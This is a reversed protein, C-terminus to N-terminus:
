IKKILKHCNVYNKVVEFGKKLFIPYSMNSAITIWSQYPVKEYLINFVGKGRFKPLTYAYLIHTKNYTLFGRLENDEYDFLWTQGFEVLLPEGLEKYCEKSTSIYKIIDVVEHINQTELVRHINGM